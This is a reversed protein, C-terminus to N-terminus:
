HGLRTSCIRIGISLVQWRTGNNPLQIFVGLLASRRKKTLSGQCFVSFNRFPCYSNRESFVVCCTTPSIPIIDDLSNSTSNNDPQSTRVLWAFEVKETALPTCRFSEANENASLMYTLTVCGICAILTPTMSACAQGCSKSPLTGFCNWYKLNLNPM